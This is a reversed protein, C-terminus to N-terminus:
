KVGVTNFLEDERPEDPEAMVASEELDDLPIPSGDRRPSSTALNGPGELVHRLMDNMERVEDRLSQVEELVAACSFFSIIFKLKLCSFHLTGSVPSNHRQLHQFTPYGDEFLSNLTLITDKYIIIQSAAM